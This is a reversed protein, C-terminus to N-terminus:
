QSKAAANREKARAVVAAYAKVKQSEDNFTVEDWYRGEPSIVVVVAACYDGRDEFLHRKEIELLELALQKVADM